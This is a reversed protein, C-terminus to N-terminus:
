HQSRVGCPVVEDIVEPAVGLGRLCFRPVRKRADSLDRASTAWQREIHAWVIGHVSMADEVADGEAFLGLRMGREIQDILPRLIENYAPAVLEPSAFIQSHAELSLQRYGAAIEPDFALDLRWDIWAVVARVPGEAAMRQQLQEMGVRALEVFMAQVLQEKSDFNRYFARTSLQARALVRSVGLTRVGEAHVIAFAAALIEARVQPDPELKPRGRHASDMEVLWLAKEVRPM